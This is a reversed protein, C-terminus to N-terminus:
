QVRVGPQISRRTPPPPNKERRLHTGRQNEMLPAKRSMASFFTLRKSPMCSTTAAAAAEEGSSLRAGLRVADRRERTDGLVALGVLADFDRGRQRGLVVARRQRHHGRAAGVRAPGLRRALGAVPYTDTATSSPPLAFTVATSVQPRGGTGRGKKGGGGRGRGQRVWGGGEKGRLCRGQAFLARAAFAPPIAVALEDLQQDALLVAAEANGNAAANIGAVRVLRLDKDRLDLGAASGLSLHPPSRSSRVHFSLLLM